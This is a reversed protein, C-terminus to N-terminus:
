EYVVGRILFCKRFCISDRNGLGGFFLIHLSNSIPNSIGYNILIDFAFCSGNAQSVYFSTDIM